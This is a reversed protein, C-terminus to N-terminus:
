STLPVQPAAEAGIAAQRYAAPAQGTHRRFFRSFYAPDSFGLDFALQSVPAQVHVLLRCAERVLRAHVVHQASHGTEARVLRNLREASLGLQDAYRPIPWHETYHQEVLVLWRTYLAHRGQVRPPGDCRSRWQALHWLVSCALWLPVPAPHTAAPHQAEAHLAQWLTQLQQAIADQAPLPLATPTAFLTHLATGITSGDQEALVSADFTLVYGETHPAFRFAHAVGPPVVLALPGTGQIRTEDLLAHVSGQWVWLLQHLGHHVHADIEWDYLRSRSVISEIHLMRLMGSRGEGYLAFVPLRRLSRRPRAAPKVSAHPLPSPPHSM